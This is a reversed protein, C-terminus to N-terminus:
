EDHLALCSTDAYSFKLLMSPQAGVGRLNAELVHSNGRLIEQALRAKSEVADHLRELVLTQADTPHTGACAGLRNFQRKIM